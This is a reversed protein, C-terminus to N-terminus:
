LLGERKSAKEVSSYVLYFLFCFLFYYLFSKFFFNSFSSLCVCFLGSLVM